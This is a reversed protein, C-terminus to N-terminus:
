NAEHKGDVKRLIAILWMLAPIILLFVVGVKSQFKLFYDYAYLLSSPLVAILFIFPIVPIITVNERKFNCLQSVLLSAVYVGASIYMFVSMIWWGMMLIEQNEIFSGPLQISEMLTLVPWFERSSEITGIGTFTLIIILVELITIVLLASFCCRRIKKPRNVFAGIVLVFELPMFTVSTHFSGVLVKNVDSRFMPLLQNYDAKFMIFLMVIVVPVFIFYVLIEAMRGQAEVGSKILYYTAFLMLLMIVELPTNPLLVRQIMEAFLRLEFGITIIIKVLFMITVLIGIPKTLIIKSYEVFSKGRFRNTLGTIAFIYISGILFGFLPLWYGDQGVITSCIRPLILISMNFMQLTLMIRFQHMSIRSNHTYM